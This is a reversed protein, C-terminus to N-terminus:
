TMSLYAAQGLLHSDIRLCFAVNIHVFGDAVVIPGSHSLVPHLTWPKLFMVLNLVAHTCPKGPLHAHSLPPAAAAALLLAAAVVALLLAGGAGTLLGTHAPAAGGLETMAPVADEAHHLVANCACHPYLLCLLLVNATATCVNAVLGTCHRRILVDHVHLIDQLSEQLCPRTVTQVNHSFHFSIKRQSHRCIIGVSPLLRCCSSFDPRSCLHSSGCM